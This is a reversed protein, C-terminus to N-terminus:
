KQTEATYMEGPNEGGSCQDYTIKKYTCFVKGPNNENTYNIGDWCVATYGVKAKSDDPMSSDDTREEDLGPCDGIGVLEWTMPPAPAPNSSTTECGALFVALVVLSIILPLSLRSSM